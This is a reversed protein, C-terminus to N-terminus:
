SRIPTPKIGAPNSVAQIARLTSNPISSQIPVRSWNSGNWFIITEGSSARGVSWCHNTDLCSVAFLNANPVSASPIVRAWNNGNYYLILAEGGQRAGVAWCHQANSCDIGFLNRNPISASPPYRTWQSGDWHLIMEGNRQNGVAWCSNSSPCSIGRLDYDFSNGGSTTINYGTWSNGNWHAIASDSGVAWCDNAAICDIAYLNEYRVSSAPLVRNWSSGNWRVFLARGNNRNGVIWCHNHDVCTVGRLTTNPISNNPAQRAWTDGDWHGITEYGSRSGVVWCDYPDVCSISRLTTNPISSYPGARTWGQETGHLIVEGGSQAGTAVLWYKSPVLPTASEVVFRGKAQTLSPVAAEVTIACVSQKVTSGASHQTASSDYKGRTANRFANTDQSTYDIIEQNIRLRGVNAYGTTSNVPLTPSTNNLDASLTTTAPAHTQTTIRYAGAGFNAQTNNLATCSIRNAAIPDLLQHFARQLGGEAIYEAQLTAQRNASSQHDNSMMYALSAGLAGLIIIIILTTLIASGRLRIM